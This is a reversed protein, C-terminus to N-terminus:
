HATMEKQRKKAFGCGIQSFCYYVYWLKSDISNNGIRVFPKRRECIETSVNM